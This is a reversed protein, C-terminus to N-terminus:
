EEQEEPYEVPTATTTPDGGAHRAPRAPSAGGLEEANQKVHEPAPSGGCDAGATCPGAARSAGPVGEYVATGTITGDWVELGCIM